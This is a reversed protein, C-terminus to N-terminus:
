LATLLGASLCGIGLEFDTLVDSVTCAIKLKAFEVAICVTGARKMTYFIYTQEVVQFFTLKIQEINEFKTVIEDLARKSWLATRCLDRTDKQAGNYHCTQYLSKPPTM